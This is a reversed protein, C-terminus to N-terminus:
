NDQCDAQADCYQGVLCCGVCCYGVGPEREMCCNRRVSSTTAGPSRGVALAINLVILVMIAGRM